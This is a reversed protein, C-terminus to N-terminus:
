CDESVPSLGARRESRVSPPIFGLSSCHVSHLLILDWAGQRRAWLSRGLVVRPKVLLWSIWKYSFKIYTNSTLNLNNKKVEFFFGLIYRGVCIHLSWMEIFFLIFIWLAVLINRASDTMM